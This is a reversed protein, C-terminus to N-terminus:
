VNSLIHAHNARKLKLAYCTQKRTPRTAGVSSVITKWNTPVMASLANQDKSGAHSCQTVGDGAIKVNHFEWTLMLEELQQSISESMLTNISLTKPGQVVKLM